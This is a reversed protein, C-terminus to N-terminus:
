HEIEGFKTIHLSFTVSERESKLRRKGQMEEKRLEKGEERRGEM